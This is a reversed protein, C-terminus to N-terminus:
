AATPYFQRAWRRFAAIAADEAVLVPRELYVKSEWVRIDQEVQKSLEDIFGQGVTHTAGDDPLKKVKFTFRADVHEDDVPTITTLLLTEILGTFRVVGFGFGLSRIDLVGDIMGFPTEMQTKAELCFHPGDFSIDPQPLNRLKHLHLFHAADFANEVMEHIDTRIRWRRKFYPTWAADDHEALPPVEWAPPEGHPHFYILIFGNTERVPWARVAARPLKKAYPVDNCSGERDFRWGHFPCRVGDGDVCGLGLHAGLHPCHADLVAARGDATRYLVLARGFYELSQIGMAPLEDSYAVAYWGVPNPSFPFRRPRQALQVLTM